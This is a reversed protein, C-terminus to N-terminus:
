KKLEILIVGNGGRTGYIAANSDKLVEISRVQCPQIWDISSTAQGDVVYLAQTAGQTFSNNGGRVYVQNSSVTVGSLQGRILDFINSYSCFDNNEDELNAVAYTLDEESIYGYGVARQRNAKTDIFLLNIFLSDTEPKVKRTVPQFTKPKIQIVDKELCVISFQGLSDTTITAKSKKATVEVNKVPYTNYLTLKGYVVRNQSFVSASLLVGMLITIVQKMM